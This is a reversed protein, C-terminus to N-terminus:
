APFILSFVVGQPHNNVQVEGQHLQMISQVIALGLGGTQAKQHRSSDIQYFREFLHALHQEAIHVGATLVDIRCSNETTMATIRIEGNEKGYQVANSLLNALARQLHEPHAAINLQAPIDMYISMNKEEALFEFYALLDEIIQSLELTQKEIQYHGHEVRAIFLMNEIMQTLREYEELHSYLLNELEDRSRSKSLAIQTQGMLNNLPTRLEHSIDESFRALQEYGQQIRDLMANMAETLQLVEITRSPLEIRQDLQQVSIQQTAYILQRMSRLLYHGMLWALLTSLIIGLLTYIVLKILYHKLVQQGAALQKGAILQYSQGNFKVQKFALRTTPQEIKNNQYNLKTHYDLLPITINLPNIDILTNQANKLILLNDEQGLMNEYLEPHEILVQFSQQDALFIEIRSIRLALAEDQQQQVMQQMNHYSLGGISLFVICSILGFAIGLRTGLHMKM